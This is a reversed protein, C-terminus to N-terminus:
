VVALGNKELWLREDMKSDFNTNKFEIAKESLTRVIHLSTFGITISCPPLAFGMSFIFEVSSKNNEFNFHADLLSELSLDVENFPYDMFFKNIGTFNLALPKTVKELDDFEEFVIIAENSSFILELKQIGLDHFIINEMEKKLKITDMTTLEKDM